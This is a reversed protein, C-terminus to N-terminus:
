SVQENVWAAYAASAQITQLLIEPVQYPHLAQLRDVLESERHRTTKITLYFETGRCMEGQWRYVSRIPASIQACAALREDILTQALGEAQEQTELTTAVLLIQPSM